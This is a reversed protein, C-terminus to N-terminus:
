PKQEKGAGRRLSTHDLYGIVQKFLTVDNLVSEIGHLNVTLGGIEQPNGGRGKGETHFRAVLEGKERVFDLQLVSYDFNELAGILREKLAKFAPDLAFRPDREELVRGLAQVDHIELFGPEKTAHLYGEGLSIHPWRVRVSIRGSLQGDGDATGPPLLALIEKLSLHQAQIVFDAEKRIPDIQANEVSLRGGAWQWESKELFLSHLGELHFIFTGDLFSTKGLKLRGFKIQQGPPTSLPSLRSIELAASVGEIANAGGKEGRLAGNELRLDIRPTPGGNDIEIEGEMSVTGGFRLGRLASFLTGPQNNEGLAVPPLVAEMEGRPAGEGSLDVRGKAAVTAGELLPWGAEFSLTSGALSLTGALPPLTDETGLKLSGIKFTGAPHSGSGARIPLDCEIGSFSVRSAPWELRGDRFRLLTEFVPPKGGRTEISGKAELRGLGGSGPQEGGLSLRLAPEKGGASFSFDGRVQPSEGAGSRAQFSGSVRGGSLSAALDRGGFRGNVSAAINGADARAKIYREPAKGSLELGHIGLRCPGTRIEGDGTRNSLSRFSARSGDKSELKLDGRTTVVGALVLEGELGKFTTKGRFLSLDLPGASLRLTPFRIEWDGAGPSRYAQFSGKAKWTGPIAAGHVKGPALLRAIRDIEGESVLSGEVGPPRSEALSGSLETLRFGRGEASARFTLPGAQEQIRFELHTLPETDFAAQGASLTFDLRRPESAGRRESHLVVEAQDAKLHHSDPSDSARLLLDRAEGSLALKERGRSLDFSGSFDLRGSALPYLEDLALGSGRLELHTQQRGSEIAGQVRVPGGAVTTDLNVAYRDSGAASITAEFPFRRKEGELELWLTSSRFEISGLFLPGAGKLDLNDLPGLDLRGDRYRADIELGTVEAHDLATGGGPQPKMEIRVTAARLRKEKGVAVDALEAESASARRIEFTVDRLGLSALEHTAVRRVLVPIVVARFVFIGVGIAAAVGALRVLWKSRRTM